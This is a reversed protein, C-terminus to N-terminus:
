SHSTRAMFLVDPSRDLAPKDVVYRCNMLLAANPTYFFKELLRSVTECGGRWAMKVAKDRSKDNIGEQKLLLRVMAEHGGFAACSLADDREAGGSNRELFLRM